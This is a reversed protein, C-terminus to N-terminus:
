AARRGRMEDVFARAQPLLLPFGNARQYRPQYAFDRRAKDTRFSSSETLNRIGRYTLEPDPGGLFHALEMGRGVLRMMSGPLALRPFPEGLDEVLPQFWKLGNVPENDTIFYAQGGASHPPQRLARAALLQADVLNDIHTNDMTARGNGIMVKFKGQALSSLFSNIMLSRTDCGWVGGPRLACSRLGGATDAGLAIREAEIKTQSYLDRTRVAYPLSEDKDNLVRDLVVNFTSTHVLATAGAARAVRVVNETGTCNVEYVLRREAPRYLSLLNILAATHFVTDVGVFAAAIDSEYRLDGQFRRLRPHERSQPALDLSHVTLGLDLLREVLASGVYGAGGTVLCTAGLEDASFRPAPPISTDTMTM